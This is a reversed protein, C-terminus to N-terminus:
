VGAMRARMEHERAEELKDVRATLSKGWTETATLREALIGFQGKVWVAASVVTVIVSFIPLACTQVGTM